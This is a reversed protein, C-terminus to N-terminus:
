IGDKAPFPARIVVIGSGGAGSYPAFYGTSGGGGGKNTEGNLGNNRDGGGHGSVATGDPADPNLNIGSGAGGGAYFVSSGTRYPNSLGSGGAGGPGGGKCGGCPGCGGIGGANGGPGGAGGGGGPARMNTGSCAGGPSGGNNGQGPTGAGGYGAGSGGSGNGSPGPQSGAGGGLADTVGVNTTGDGQFRFLTDEGRTQPASPTSISGGAGVTIDYIGAALAVQEVVMGGAGGGAGGGSGGGAISLIDMTVPKTGVVEFTGSTAFTHIKYDVGSETRYTEEGGLTEAEQLGVTGVHRGQNIFAM